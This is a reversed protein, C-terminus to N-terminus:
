SQSAKLPFPVCTLRLGTFLPGFCYGSSRNASAASTRDSHMLCLRVTIRTGVEESPQRSDPGSPSLWTARRFCFLGKTTTVVSDAGNGNNSPCQTVHFPVLEM